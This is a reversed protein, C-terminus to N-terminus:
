AEQRALVDLLRGTDINGGTLTVAVRQGPLEVKGALLAAFACAGSPEVVVHLDDLLVRMAARIEDDTVVVIQEVLPRSIAYTLEGPTALQQGDAISETLTVRVREGRAFSRHWDDSSAPEVGIVRTGPTRAHLVTACGALLGGGGTCVLLADVDGDEVLELATTGAGAIIAPDDYPHVVTLGHRDALEAVRVDPDEAYRDFELIKGGLRLTALRKSEPADAPMVITATSGCLRAALAVAQAHNGSSSTVLGARLEDPGLQSIKNYAGRFKFSGTRQLNEAKFAVTAGVREDIAPSTLLPTRTAVDRLRAAAAVVDEVTVM